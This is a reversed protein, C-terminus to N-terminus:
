LPWLICVTFYDEWLFARIKLAKGKIYFPINLLTRQIIEKVAIIAHKELIIGLLHGRRIGVM